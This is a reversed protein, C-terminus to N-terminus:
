LSKKRLVTFWNSVSNKLFGILGILYTFIKFKASIYKLFVNLNKNNTHKYSEIILKKDKLYYGKTILTHYYMDNVKKMINEPVEYREAFQKRIRKSSEQFKIRNIYENPKSVTGLRKRYVATSEDIYKIKEINSIALWRPLDGLLNRPDSILDNDHSNLMLEKKVCVTCTAIAYDGTLLGYFSNTTKEYGRNTKSKYIIKGTKDYLVDVDTHVLGYEPNAELFDVQKQLKYPDTWYDDGECLAIYKGQMADKFPKRLARKNPKTHTNEPQFFCNFLEPYVAEYEKIIKVTNDTSADDHILIELPYSTKQMLFGKIADRIFKEHNFTLCSISVLPKVSKDWKQETIVIPQPLPTFNYGKNNEM